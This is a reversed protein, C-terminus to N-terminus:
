ISECRLTEMRLYYIGELFSIFAASGLFQECIFGKTGFFQRRVQRHHLLSFPSLTKLPQSAEHISSKLHEVSEPDM